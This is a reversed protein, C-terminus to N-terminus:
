NQGNYKTCKMKGPQFIKGPFNWDSNGLPLGYMCCLRTHQSSPVWSAQKGVLMEHSGSASRLWRGPSPHAPIPCDWSSLWSRMSSCNSRSLSCFWWVFLLSTGSHVGFSREGARGREQKGEQGERVGRRGRYLRGHDIWQGPFEPSQKQLLYNAPAKLGTSWLPNWWRWFCFDIWERILAYLHWSVAKKKREKKRWFGCFSDRWLYFVFCGLM